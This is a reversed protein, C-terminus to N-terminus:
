FPLFRRIMSILAIGFLVVILASAATGIDSPLWRWLVGFDVNEFVAEYIRESLDLFAAFIEKLTAIPNIM